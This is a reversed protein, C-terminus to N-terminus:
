SELKDVIHRTNLYGNLLLCLTDAAFDDVLVNWEDKFDKSLIGRWDSDLSCDFMECFASVAEPTLVFAYKTLSKGPANNPIHICDETYLKLGVSLMHEHRQALALETFFKGDETMYGQKM